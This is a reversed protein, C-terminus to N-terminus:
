YFRQWQESGSLSKPDGAYSGFQKLISDADCLAMPEFAFPFASTSRAAFALFPNNKAELDNRDEAEGSVEAKSYIFHLVNRHRREYVVDDALRIPLTVGALDTTTVFLDLEDVYSRTEKNQEKSKASQEHGTEGAEDPRDMGDFAKLLELYMRQSNLLSVPPDQKELPSEHSGKDNLLRKIEGERIWLQEIPRLSQANALAKALFIGNIGGASTGSIIDVVFRTRVNADSRAHEGSKAISESSDTKSTPDKEALLYSLKRYVRETGGLEEFPLALGNKNADEGVQATARVLHLLEQAVGNIYIALSVGGYMVVAFRVEQSYDTQPSTSM